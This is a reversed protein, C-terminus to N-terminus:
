SFTAADFIHSRELYARSLGVAALAIRRVIEASDEDTSARNENQLRVTKKQRV